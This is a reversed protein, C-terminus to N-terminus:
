KMKRLSRCDEVTACTMLLSESNYKDYCYMKNWRSSEKCNVPHFVDLILRVPRFVHLILRKIQRDVASDPEGAYLLLNSGVWWRWVACHGPAFLQSHSFPRTNSDVGGGPASILVSHWGTVCLTMYASDDQLVCHWVPVTMRYCMDFLCQTMRYRVIDDQLM